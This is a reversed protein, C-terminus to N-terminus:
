GFMSPGTTDKKSIDGNSKNSSDDNQDVHNGSKDFSKAWAGGAVFSLNELKDDEYKQFLPSKLNKM